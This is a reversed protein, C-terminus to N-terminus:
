GKLSYKLYMVQTKKEPVEENNLTKLADLEWNEPPPLVIDENKLLATLQEDMYEFHVPVPSGGGTQNLNKKENRTKLKVDSIWDFWIQTLKFYFKNMTLLDGSVYLYFFKLEIM